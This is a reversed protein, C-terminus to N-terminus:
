LIETEETFKLSGKLIKEDEQSLKVKTANITEQRNITDIQMEKNEEEHISSQSPSQSMDNDYDRM